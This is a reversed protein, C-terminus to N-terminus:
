SNPRDLNPNLAQWGLSSPLLKKKEKSNNKVRPSPVSSATDSARRILRKLRMLCFCVTVGTVVVLLAAGIGGVIAAVKQKSPKKVEAEPLPTLTPVSSDGRVTEAITTKRILSCSGPRETESPLHMGTTGWLSIEQNEWDFTSFRRSHEEVENQCFVAALVTAASTAADVYFTAFVTGFYYRNSTGAAAQHRGSTGASFKWADYGSRGPVKGVFVVCYSSKGDM